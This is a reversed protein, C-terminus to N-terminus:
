LLKHRKQEVREFRAAACEAADQVAARRDGYVAMLVPCDQKSITGTGKRELLVGIM